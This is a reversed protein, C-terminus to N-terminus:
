SSRFKLGDRLRGWENLLDYVNRYTEGLSANPYSERVSAMLQRYGFDALHLSQLLGEEPSNPWPTRSSQSMRHRLRQMWLPLKSQAPDHLPSNSPLPLSM